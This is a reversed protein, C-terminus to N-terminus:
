LLSISHLTRCQMVLVHTWNFIQDLSPADCPQHAHGPKSTCSFCCELLRSRISHSVRTAGATSLPNAPCMTSGKNDKHSSQPLNVGHYNNVTYCMYLVSPLPQGLPPTELCKQEHLDLAVMYIAEKGLLAQLHLRPAPAFGSNQFLDFCEEPSSSSLQSVTRVMGCMQFSVPAQKRTLKRAPLFKEPWPIEFLHPPLGCIRCIGAPFSQGSRAGGFKKSGPRARTTSSVPAGETTARFFSPKQLAFSLPSVNVMQGVM